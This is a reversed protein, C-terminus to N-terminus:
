KERAMRRVAIIAALVAASLVAGYFALRTTDGTKVTGATKKKKSSPKPAKPTGTETENKGEPTGFTISNKHKGDKTAETEANLGGSDTNTVLVTLKYSEKRSDSIMYHYSGPESFRVHFTGQGAVTLTKEEPLPSKNDPMMTLVSRSECRVPVAATVPATQASVASASSFAIFSASLVAAAKKFTRMSKGRKRKKKTM